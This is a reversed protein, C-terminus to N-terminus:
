RLLRKLMLSILLLVIGLSVFAQAFGLRDIVWGMVPFIVIMSLSVIMAHVSLMTARIESPLSHQLDNGFIPGFFSVLGESILFILAYLIPQDFTALLFLLGTLPIITVFVQKATWRQGAHSALWVAGINIASAGLMVLSIQWPTLNVLENQYYFYFMTVLTLITQSILMWELLKPNDKFCDKVAILITKITPAQEVKEKIDPEKMLTILGIVLISLGIQIIYTWNLFGHVLFAACVMGLARTAESVGSLISSIKLYKDELGAQKVSEFLMADSTGSDFNYSWASVIMGLAYIWINGQGYLMLLASIIATIRSIYLNTKYSFRDAMVGSPVESLFSTGHFLSELLGIQLLSMGNQSLFLLWFSTIGFFSFFELGGLLKINKIYSKHLM